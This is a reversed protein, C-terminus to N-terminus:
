ALKITIKDVVMWQISIVMCSSSTPNLALLGEGNKKREGEWKLHFKTWQCHEYYPNSIQDDNIWGCQMIFSYHSTLATMIGTLNIVVFLEFKCKWKFQHRGRYVYLIIFSGLRHYEKETHRMKDKSEDWKM